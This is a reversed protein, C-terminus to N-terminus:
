ISAVVLEPSKGPLSDHRQFKIQNKSFKEYL